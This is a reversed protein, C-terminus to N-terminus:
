ELFPATDNLIPETLVPSPMPNAQQASPANATPIGAEGESARMVEQFLEKVSRPDLPVVRQMIRRYSARPATESDEEEIQLNKADQKFESVRGEKFKVQAGNVYVWLDERLGEFESKENPSGWRDVVEHPYMGVTLPPKAPTAHLSRAGLVVVLTLLHLVSSPHRM